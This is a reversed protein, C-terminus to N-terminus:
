YRYYDGSEVKPLGCVNLKEQNRETRVYPRVFAWYRDFRRDYSLGDELGPVLPQLHDWTLVLAERNDTIGPYDSTRYFFLAFRFGFDFSRVAVPIHHEDVYRWVAHWEEETISRTPAWLSEKTGWISAHLDELM